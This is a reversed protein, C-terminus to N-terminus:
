EKTQRYQSLGSHGREHQLVMILHQSKLGIYGNHLFAGYLLLLSLKPPSLTSHSIIYSRGNIRWLWLNELVCLYHKYNFLPHFHGVQMDLM